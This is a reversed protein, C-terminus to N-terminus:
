KQASKRIVGILYETGPKLHREQTEFNVKYIGYHKDYSGWEYNDLLAWHIYSRVDCGDKIAQSIAYLYRQSQLHREEPKDTAIGNETIYIPINLPKAIKADIEKIARYM